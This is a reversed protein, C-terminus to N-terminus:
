TLATLKLAQNLGTALRSVHEPGFNCQSLRRASPFLCLGPSAQQPELAATRGRGMEGLAPPTGWVSSLPKSDPGSFLGM